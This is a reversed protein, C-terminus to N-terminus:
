KYKSWDLNTEVLGFLDVQKMKMTKCVSYIDAMNHAM